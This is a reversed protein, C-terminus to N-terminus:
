EVKLDVKSPSAALPLPYGKENVNNEGDSIYLYHPGAPIVSERFQAVIRNSEWEVPLLIDINRCESYVPSECILIRHWSDDVYLMDYYINSGPQSGNSVQSQAIRNYPDTRDSTRAKFNRDINQVGDTRVVLRADSKDVSGSDLLFEEVQWQNPTMKKIVGWDNPWVSGDTFEATMKMDYTDNFAPGVYVNNRTRDAWFRITKFNFTRYTGTPYQETGESNIATATETQMEEGFVFDLNIEDNITGAENSFFISGSIGDANLNVEYILGTAGSKQGKVIQGPRFEGRLNNFRARIAVDKTTDFDAYKKRFVYVRPGSYDVWELAKGSSLGHDWSVSAKSAPHVIKTSLEGNFSDGSWPQRGLELNANLGMNASWYFLPRSENKPGFSSGTIVIKGNPVIEGDVSDVRPASHACLSIFAWSALVIRGFNNKVKRM